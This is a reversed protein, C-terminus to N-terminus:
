KIRAPVSSKLIELNDDCVDCVIKVILSKEQNPEGVLFYEKKPKVWGDCGQCFRTTDETESSKIIGEQWALARKVNKFEFEVQKKTNELGELRSKLESVSLKRYEELSGLTEPNTM